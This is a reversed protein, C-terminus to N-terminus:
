GTKYSYFLTVSGKKRFRQKEGIEKLQRVVETSACTGTLQGKRRAVVHSDSNTSVGTCTKETRGTFHSIPAQHKEDEERRDEDDKHVSADLDLDVM